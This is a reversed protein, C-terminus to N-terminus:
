PFQSNVINSVYHKGNLFTVKQTRAGHKNLLLISNNKETKYKIIKYALLKISHVNHINTKITTIPIDCQNSYFFDGLIVCDHVGSIDM